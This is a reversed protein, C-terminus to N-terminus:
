LHQELFIPFFRTKHTSYTLIFSKIRHLVCVLHTKLLFHNANLYKVKIDPDDRKYVNADAPVFVPDQSGWFVVLPVQGM